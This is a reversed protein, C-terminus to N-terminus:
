SAQSRPPSAKMGVRGGGRPRAGRLGGPRSAGVRPIVALVPYPLVEKLEAANRVSHDLVEAALALGLGVLSGLLLGLLLYRSRKPAFPREPLHAPDLVRFHEGKWREELKEAMQADLKKSLLALYNDNLKKFDRTLTALEQEVRPTGEVRDQLGGIRQDLGKLKAELAAVERTAQEDQARILAASADGGAGSSEANLKQELAAIRALLLRV